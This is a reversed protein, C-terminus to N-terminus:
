RGPATTPPGSRSTVGLPHQAQQTELGALQQLGQMLQLEGESLGCQRIIRRAAEGRAIMERAMGFRRPRDHHRDPGALATQDVAPAPQDPLVRAGMVRISEFEQALAQQLNAYAKQTQQSLMQMSLQDAFGNPGAGGPRDQLLRGYRRRNALLFLIMVLSCAIALGDLFMAVDIRTFIAPM